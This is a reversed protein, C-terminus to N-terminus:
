VEKGKLLTYLYELFALHRRGDAGEEGRLM